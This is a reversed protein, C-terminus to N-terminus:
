TTPSPEASSDDPSMTSESEAWRAVDAVDEALARWLDALAGVTMRALTDLMVDHQPSRRGHGLLRRALDDRASAAQGLTERLEEAVGAVQDRLEATRDM